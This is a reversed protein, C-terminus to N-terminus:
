LVAGGPRRIRAGLAVHPYLWLWSAFHAETKRREMDLGVASIITQATMVSIGDLRTFDVRAIRALEQGLAFGPSNWQAKRRKKPPMVARGRFSRRGPGRRCPIWISNSRRAASGL